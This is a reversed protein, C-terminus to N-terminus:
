PQEKGTSLSVAVKMFTPDSGRRGVSGWRTLITALGAHQGGQRPRRRRGDRLGVDINRRRPRRFYDSRPGIGAVSTSADDSGGAIWKVLCFSRIETYPVEM